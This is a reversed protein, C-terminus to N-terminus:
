VQRLRGLGIWSDGLGDDNRFSWLDGIRMKQGPANHTMREKAGDELVSCDDRRPTMM